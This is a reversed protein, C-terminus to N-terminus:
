NKYNVMRVLGELQVRMVAPHSHQEGCRRGMVALTALAALRRAALSESPRRRAAVRAAGARTAADALCSPGVPETVCRRGEVRRGADGPPPRFQAGARAPGLAAATPRPHGPM